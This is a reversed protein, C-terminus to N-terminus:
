TCARVLQRRYEGRMGMLIDVVGREVGRILMTM